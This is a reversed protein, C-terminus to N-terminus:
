KKEKERKDCRTQVGEEIYGREVTTGCRLRM